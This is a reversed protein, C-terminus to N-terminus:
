AEFLKPQRGKRGVPAEVPAPSGNKSSGLAPRAEGVHDIHQKVQQAMLAHGKEHLRRHLDVEWKIGVTPKPMHSRISEYGMITLSGPAMSRLPQLWSLIIDRGALHNTSAEQALQRRERDTLEVFTSDLQHALMQEIAEAPPRPVFFINDGARSVFGEDIRCPDNTTGVIIVTSVGGADTIMRRLHLMKDRIDDTWDQEPLLIDGRHDRQGKSRVTHALDKRLAQVKPDRLLQRIRTEADLEQAGQVEQLVLNVVDRYEEHTKGDARNAVLSDIEDLLLLVTSGRNCEERAADLYQQIFRASMGLYPDKIDTPKISKLKIDLSHGQDDPHALRSAMAKALMTKGCGYPGFFLFVRPPFSKRILFWEPHTLYYLAQEIRAKVWPLGVIEDFGADPIPDWAVEDATRRAPPGGAAEPAAGSTPEVTLREGERILNSKHPLKIQDPEIEGAVVPLIYFSTPSTVSITDNEAVNLLRMTAANLVAVEGDIKKLVVVYRKPM